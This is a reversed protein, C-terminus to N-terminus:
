LIAKTFYKYLSNHKNNHAYISIIISLSNYIFNNSLSFSEESREPITPNHYKSLCFASDIMQMPHL